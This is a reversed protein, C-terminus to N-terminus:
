VPERGQGWGDRNRLRSRECPDAIGPVTSGTRRSVSSAMEFSTVLSLRARVTAFGSYGRPSIEICRSVLCKQLPASCWRLSIHANPSPTCAAEPRDVVSPGTPNHRRRTRLSEHRNTRSM